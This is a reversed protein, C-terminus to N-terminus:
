TLYRGAIPELKRKVEDPVRDKPTIIADQLASGCPCHRGKGPPRSHGSGDLKWRYVQKGDDEEPSRGM